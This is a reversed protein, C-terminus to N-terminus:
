LYGEGESFPDFLTWCVQALGFTVEGEGGKMKGKTLYHLQGPFPGTLWGQCVLQGGFLLSACHSHQPLM